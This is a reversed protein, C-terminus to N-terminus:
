LFDLLFVNQIAYADKMTSGCLLARDDDLPVAEADFLTFPLNAMATWNNGNYMYIFQETAGFYYARGDLTTMAATSFAPRPLKAIYTWNNQAENFRECTGLITDGGCVIITDNLATASHSYRATNMPTGISYNKTSIDYIVVLKSSEYSRKVGILFIRNNFLVGVSTATLNLVTKETTVVNLTPYYFEVQGNTGSVFITPVANTQYISLIIFIIKSMIAAIIQSLAKM